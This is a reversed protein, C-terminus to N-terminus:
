AHRGLTLRPRGSLRQARDGPLPLAGASASSSKALALVASALFVELVVSAVRDM